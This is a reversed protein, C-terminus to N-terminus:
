NLQTDLFAQRNKFEVIKYHPKIVLSKREKYDLIGHSKVLHEMAMQYQQDDSMLKGKSSKGFDKLCIHCYSNVKVNEFHPGILDQKKRLTALLQYASEGANCQSYYPSMLSLANELEDMLSNVEQNSWSINEQQTSM